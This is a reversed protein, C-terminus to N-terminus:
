PALASEVSWRRTVTRYVLRYLDVMTRHQTILMLTGYAAEVYFLSVVFGAADPDIATAIFWGTAAVASCVLLPIAIHRVVRVGEASLAHGLILADVVAGAFWGVGLAQAGLTPLLPTAVAFWTATHAVVAKLPVGPRNRAYLLGVAATSIPGALLIGAAAWPLVPVVDVWRAGFATPVLAPATGGIAVAAFGLFVTTLALAREISPEPREGTEILRSIAPFSVRWLSALVLMIGQLIRNALSWIGLVFLGGVAAAVLNLGQDRSTNVVNVAQFALGFSLLPRVTALSFTPPIFGVPGMAVLTTTGACVSLIAAVALGWVGLGAVVLGIASVNYVAVETIDARILPRYFLRREAVVATPVKFAGIPLSLAMVAALLGTRGLPLGIAAVVATTLVSTSLVFGLLSRLERASPEARRRILAAGIGGDSLFAGFTVLTYGFAVVGFDSPTLLRALVLNGILGVVRIVVGRAAVSM